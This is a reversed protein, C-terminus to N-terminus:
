RDSSSKWCTSVFNFSKPKLFVVRFGFLFVSVYAGWGARVIDHPVRGGRTETVIFLPGFPLNHPDMGSRFWRAAPRTLALFVDLCFCFFSRFCLAFLRIMKARACEM